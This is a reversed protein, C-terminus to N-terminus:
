VFRKNNKRCYENREQDSFPIHMDVFYVESWKKEHIRAEGMSQDWSDITGGEEIHNALRKPHFAEKICEILVMNRAPHMHHMYIFQILEEGRGLRFSERCFSTNKVTIYEEHRIPLGYYTYNWKIEYKKNEVQLHIEGNKSFGQLLTMPVSLTMLLVIYLKHVHHIISRDFPKRLVDVIQLHPLMVDAYIYSRNTSKTFIKQFESAQELDMPSFYQYGGKKRLLAFFEQAM